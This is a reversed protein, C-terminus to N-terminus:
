RGLESPILGVLDNKSLNLDRMNKMKYFSRPIQGKLQNNSVDLKQLGAMTTWQVPFDGGIHNNAFILSETPPLVSGISILPM